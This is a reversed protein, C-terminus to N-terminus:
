LIGGWTTNKTNAALDAFTPNSLSSFYAKRERWIQMNKRQQIMRLRAHWLHISATDDGDDYIITNVRGIRTNFLDDEPGYGIMEEDYGRLRTFTDLHVVGNGHAYGGGNNPLNLLNEYDSSEAMTSKAAFRRIFRVNMWSPTYKPQLNYNWFVMRLPSMTASLVNNMKRQVSEIHTKRYVLDIDSIIFYESEILSRVGFNIGHARSFLGRYPRHIYAFHPVIDEIESRICVESNNSVCVRVNQKALSGLSFRFRRIADKLHALEFNFIYLVDM